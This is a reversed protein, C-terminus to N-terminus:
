KPPVPASQSAADVAERLKDTEAHLKAALAAHDVHVYVHLEVRGSLCVALEFKNQDHM